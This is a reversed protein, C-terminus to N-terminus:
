ISIIKLEKEFDLIYYELNKDHKKGVSIIQFKMNFYYIM